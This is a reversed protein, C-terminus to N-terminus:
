LETQPSPHRVFSQTWDVLRQSSIGYMDVGDNSM